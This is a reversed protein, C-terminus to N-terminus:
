IGLLYFFWRGKKCLRCYNLLWVPDWTDKYFYLLLDAQFLFLSGPTLYVLFITAPFYNSTSLQKM